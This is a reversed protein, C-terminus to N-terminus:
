VHTKGRVTAQNIVVSLEKLVGDLRKDASISGRQMKETKLIRELDRLTQKLRTDTLDFVHDQIREKSVLYVARVTVLAFLFSAALVTYFLHVLQNTRKFRASREEQTKQSLKVGRKEAENKLDYVKEELHKLGRECSQREGQKAARNQQLNKVKDILGCIKDFETQLNPESLKSCDSPIRTTDRDALEQRLGKENEKFLLIEREDIEIMKELFEIREQNFKLEQKTRILDTKYCDIFREIKEIMERNSKWEDEIQSYSMHQFKSPALQLSSDVPRPILLLAKTVHGTVARAPYNNLLLQTRLM